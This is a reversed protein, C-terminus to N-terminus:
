TSSMKRPGEAGCLEDEGLTASGVLSMGPIGIYDRQGNMKVLIADAMRGPEGCSRMKDAKIGRFRRTSARLEDEDRNCVAPMM